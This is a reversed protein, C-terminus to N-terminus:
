MSPHQLIVVKENESPIPAYYPWYQSSPQPTPLQAVVLLQRGSATDPVELLSELVSVFLHWMRLEHHDFDFILFHVCIPHQLHCCQSLPHLTLLSLKFAPIINSMLIPSVVFLANHLVDNNFCKYYHICIYITCDRNDPHRPVFPNHGSLHFIWIVSTFLYYFYIIHSNMTIDPYLLYGSLPPRTLLPPVTFIVRNQFTHLQFVHIKKHKTLDTYQYLFQPLRFQIKQLLNIKKDLSCTITIMPFTCIMCLIVNLMININGTTYQDNHSQHAVITHVRIVYVVCSVNM